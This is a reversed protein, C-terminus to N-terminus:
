FDLMKFKELVNGLTKLGPSEIDRELCGDLMAQSVRVLESYFASVDAHQVGGVRAERVPKHCELVCEFELTKSDLQKFYVLRRVEDDFCMFDMIGAQVEGKILQSFNLMWFGLPMVPYDVWAREPFQYEGWDLYLPATITGSGGGPESQHLKGPDLYIQFFGM